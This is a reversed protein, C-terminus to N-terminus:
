KKRMRKVLLGIVAIAMIVGVIVFSAPSSDGGSYSTNAALIQM